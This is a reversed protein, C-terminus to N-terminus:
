AIRRPNAHDSRRQERRRMALGPMLILILVFGLRLVSVQRDDTRTLENITRRYSIGQVLHTQRPGDAATPTRRIPISELTILV